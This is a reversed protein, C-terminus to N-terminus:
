RLLPLLVAASQRMVTDSNPQQYAEVSVVGNYGVSRLADIVEQFNLRGAGPALRHHDCVHVYRLYERAAAFAEAPREGEVWLHGLDLMLQLAPHALERLLALGAATGVGWNAIQRNLPEILVRIGRAAALDAAELIGARGWSLAVPRPVDSRLRGRVRGINCDAGLRAALEVAARVRRRAEARVAASPDTFSLGDEGFVEGTCVLVVPLKFEAALAAMQSADVRSPDRVMLEVAHYGLESLRAFATRLDGRYATVDANSVEPTAVQYALQM